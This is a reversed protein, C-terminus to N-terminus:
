DRVRFRFKDPKPSSNGARDRALARLLHRGSDLEPAVFRRGCRRFPAGDIRCRIRVADEDALVRFRPTRDSTRRKGKIEVLPGLNDPSCAGIECLFPSNYTNWHTALYSGAPPAPSFYDDGGCDLPLAISTTPRNLAACRAGTFSMLDTGDSCHGGGDSNPASAQIAGLNHFIEHVGEQAAHQAGEGTASFNFVFAFQGGAGYAAGSPSDDNPIAALGGAQRNLISPVYVLFNRPSPQPGLLGALDDRLRNSSLTGQPPVYYASPRPLSVRQVDVCDPGESTGLDFAISKRDGSELYVYEMADRVAQALRPYYAAAENPADAPHTYVVKVVPTGAPQFAHAADDAATDVFGCSADPLYAPHQGAVRPGAKARDADRAASTGGSTLAPALLVAILASVAGLGVRM